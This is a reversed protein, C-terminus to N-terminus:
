RSITRSRRKPPNLHRTASRVVEEAIIARESGEPYKAECTVGYGKESDSKIRLPVDYEGICHGATFGSWRARVVAVAATRDIVGFKGEGPERKLPNESSFGPRGHLREGIGRMRAKVGDFAM